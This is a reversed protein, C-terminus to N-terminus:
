IDRFGLSRGHEFTTAPSRTLSLFLLGGAVNRPVQSVHSNELHTPKLVRVVMFQPVDGHTDFTFSM